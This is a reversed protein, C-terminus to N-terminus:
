SREHALVHLGRLARRFGAGRVLDDLDDLGDDVRQQDREEQAHDEATIANKKEQPNDKQQRIQFFPEPIHRDPFLMHTKERGEVEQAPSEMAAPQRDYDRQQGQRLHSM